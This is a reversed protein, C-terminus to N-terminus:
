SRAVAQCRDPLPRAVAQSLRTVAELCAQAVLGTALGESPGRCVTAVDEGPERWIRGLGKDLGGWIRVLDGPSPHSKKVLVRGPLRAFSIKVNRSLRAFPRRMVQCLISDVLIPSRLLRPKRTDILVGLNCGLCSFHIISVMLASYPIEIVGVTFVCYLLHSM